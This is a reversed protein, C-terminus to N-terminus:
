RTTGATALSSVGSVPSGVHGYRQMAQAVAARGGGGGHRDGDRHRGGRVGGAGGHRPFRRKLSDQVETSPGTAFIRATMTMMTVPRVSAKPSVDPPNRRRIWITKPREIAKAADLKKRDNKEKPPPASRQHLRALGDRSEMRWHMARQGFRDQEAARRARDGDGVSRQRGGDAKAQAEPEDTERHPRDSMERGDPGCLAVRLEDVDHATMETVRGEKTRSTEAM